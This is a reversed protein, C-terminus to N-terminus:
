LHHYPSLTQLREDDLPVGITFHYLDQWGCGKIGLVDHMADDFYCGIGTGRLSKDEAELYLMQGVLGAEWFLCPYLWPARQLLPEFRALMALSFVGDGAIEQHCSVTAAVSRLDGQVLLYLPVEQEVRNWSFGPDLLGRLEALHEGNRLFCYLGPPLGEVRHVFVMLQTNAAMPLADFPSGGTPLTACLIQLFKEYTISSAASDYVQASRRKRIMSEATNGSPSRLLPAPIAEPRSGTFGSSRTAEVVQRILPWDVHARSLQSPLDPYDPPQLSALWEALKPQWPNGAAVWCLCDAHELEGPHGNGKGIGLLRDLEPGGVEPRVALKWGLLAASFRLSGLAHGVDHQTYRFAREGYKWSERWFISSLIVGFGNLGALIEAEATNLRARIELRHLLPNYHAISPPIGPCAPILLHCETPHLNGSSPNMRLSWESHEFRKWASLGLGLELLSAVTELNVPAPETDWEGILTAYSKGAQRKGLPLVLQESAPYFRFPEPQSTWDMRDPGPAYRDFRHKTSQHYDMVIQRSIVSQGM